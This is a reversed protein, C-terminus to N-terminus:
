KLSMQQNRGAITEGARTRYARRVRKNFAQAAVRYRFPSDLSGTYRIVAEAADHELDRPEAPLLVDRHRLFVKRARRALWGLFGDM